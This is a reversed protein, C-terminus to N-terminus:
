GLLRYGPYLGHGFGVGGARELARITTGASGFGPLDIVDHLNVAQIGIRQDIVQVKVLGQHKSLGWQRAYLALQNAHNNRGDVATLVSQPMM